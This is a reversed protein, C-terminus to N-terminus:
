VLCLCCKSLRCRFRPTCPFMPVLPSGFKPNSRTFLLCPVYAEQMSGHTISKDSHTSASVHALITHVYWSQLTRRCAALPTSSACRSLLSLHTMAIAIGGTSKGVFFCAPRLHDSFRAPRDTPRHNTPLYSWNM